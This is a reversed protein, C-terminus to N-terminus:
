KKDRVTKSQFETQDFSHANFSIWYTNNKSDSGVSFGDNIKTHIDDMSQYMCHFNSVM